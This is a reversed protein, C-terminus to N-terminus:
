IQSSVSNIIALEHRMDEITKDHRCFLPPTCQHSSLNCVFVKSCDHGTCTPVCIMDKKNLTNCTQVKILLKRLVWHVMRMLFRARM